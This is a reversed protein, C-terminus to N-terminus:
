VKSNSITGDNGNIKKTIDILKDVIEENSEKCTNQGKHVSLKSMLEPPLLNKKENVQFFFICSPLLYCCLDCYM